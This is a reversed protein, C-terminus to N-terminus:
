RRGRALTDTQRAVEQATGKQAAIVNDLKSAVKDLGAVTKTGDNTDARMARIEALIQNLAHTTQAASNSQSQVSATISSAQSPSYILSGGGPPTPTVPGIPHGGGTGGSGGGGGAGSGGTGTGTGTGTGGSNPPVATGGNVLTVKVPSTLKKDISDVSAATAAGSDNIDTLYDLPGSLSVGALYPALAEKEDEPLTNVQATLAAIAAKSSASTTANKVADFYPQLSTADASPLKTIKDQLAQSDLSNKDTLDGINQGLQQALETVPVGLQGALNALAETDSVSGDGKIGAQKALAPLNLHLQSVLDKLPTGTATLLDHINGILAQLNLQMQLPSLAAAQTSSSSSSASGRGHSSSGANGPDPGLSTNAFASLGDRVANFIATYSDSSSYFTRAADLYDQASKTLNALDDTNGGEAGTLTAQYQTAAADLRQQPTLTTISTDLLMQNLFDHVQKIAAIQADYLQKAADAAKSASSAVDNFSSAASAATTSSTGDTSLGLTGILDLTSQELQALAAAAAQAAISHINALDQESAGQLGAAQALKNAQDINDHMTQDISILSEEYSTQTGAAVGLQASFSQYSRLATNYAEQATTANYLANGAAVWAAIQDPTLTPLAAAFDRAFQATTEGATEGIAVLQKNATDWISTMQNVAGNGVAGFEQIFQALATGENAVGGFAKALDDALGVFADGTQTVVNGTDLYLSNLNQTESQLRAYTQLLTEGTATYKQIATFSDTLTAAQENLINNGNKLDVDVAFLTQAADLLTAANSRYQDALKSAAQASDGQDILAITNEAAYRQAFATADETYQKGLFESITKTSAVAGKKTYTTITDFTGAILDGATKGLLTAQTEISTKEQDYLSQAAADADSGADISKVRTEKGGFLAKQRTQTESASASGGSADLSITTDTSQTQFKTGFLKGGSVKDVVLAALAIWGVVPVAALGASIGATMATTVAAGVAYGAVAGTITSVGTSIGGSGLTSGYLAGGAAGLLGGTSFGGITGGFPAATSATNGLLYEGGGPIAGASSLADASGLTYAGGGAIAGSSALTSGGGFLSSGSAGIGLMSLIGGGGSGSAAGAGLNAFTALESSTGTLGFLSNIIGNFIELKLFEEIIAAIFQKTDDVLSKGFDSWNKITGTAFDAISKGLSDFGSSAIGIFQKQVEIARKNAEIQLNTTQISQLITAKDADTLTIHNKVAENLAEQYQRETEKQLGDLTSLRVDEALKTNLDAIVDSSDKIAATRKITTDIVVQDQAAWAKLVETVDAGDIAAKEAAKANADLGAQMEDLAKQFPDDVAEKLSFIRNQFDLLAQGSEDIAQKHKKTAAIAADAAQASAILAAGEKGILTNVSALAGNYANYADYSATVVSIGSNLETFFTTEAAALAVSQVAAKAKEITYEALGVKGKGYTATVEDMKEKEKTLSEIFHDVESTVANSAINRAANLRLQAQTVADTNAKDVLLNQSYGAEAEESAGIDRILTAWFGNAANFEKSKAAAEETGSSFAQVALTSAAFKNGTAEVNAVLAITSASVLHTQDNLAVLAKTPEDGLKEFAEAAKAISQGTLQAFAAAGLAAENLTDGAFKGSQALLLVDAQADKSKTGTAAIQAVLAQLQQATQGAQGNTLNLASNLKDLNQQAQITSYVFVGVTAAVIGFAIGIPNMLSALVGMRNALVTTSGILRTFNGRLAEGTMVALERAVGSTSGQLQNLAATAQASGTAVNRGFGSAASGANSFATSASSGASKAAADFDRLDGQATKLVASLGSGDGKIRLSVELDNGSAM